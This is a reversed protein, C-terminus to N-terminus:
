EKAHLKNRRGVFRQKQKDKDKLYVAMQLQKKMFTAQFLCDEVINYVREWLAPLIHINIYSNYANEVELMDM